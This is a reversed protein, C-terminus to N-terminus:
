THWSGSVRVTPTFLKDRNKSKSRCGYCILLALQVRVRAEASFKLETLPCIEAKEPIRYRSVAGTGKRINILPSMIDTKLCCQVAVSVTGVLDQVQVAFVRAM